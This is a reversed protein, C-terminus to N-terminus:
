VDLILNRGLDPYLIWPEQTLYLFNIAEDLASELGKKIQGSPDSTPTCNQIQTKLSEINQSQIRKIIRMDDNSLVGAFKYGDLVTIHTDGDIDIAQNVWMFFKWMFINAVWSHLITKGDIVIPNNLTIQFSLSLHLNTAGLICVKPDNRVDLYNFVGAYCQCLLLTVSKLSQPSRIVQIFKHAFIANTKGIPIGRQGGHGTVCVVTHESSILGTYSAELTGLDHVQSDIDLEKLQVKAKPHDTFVFIKEKAIGKKLLIWVSFIIDELHRTNADGAVFVWSTNEKNLKQPSLKHTSSPSTSKSEQTPRLNM